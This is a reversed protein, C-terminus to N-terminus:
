QDDGNSTTTPSSPWCKWRTTSATSTTPTICAWTCRSAAQGARRCPCSPRSLNSRTGERVFSFAQKAQFLDSQQADKLLYVNCVNGGPPQTLTALALNAVGTQDVLKTLEAALQFQNRVAQVQDVERSATFEYYWAVTGAPLTVPIVTRSPQPNYYSFLYGQQPALVQVTRYKKPAVAVPQGSADWRQRTGVLQGQQYTGAERRHGAEDYTVCTGQWVAPHEGLLKGDWQVVGSPYAYDRVLGVPVGQQYSVHRVYSAQDPQTVEEKDRDLYLQWSGTRVGGLTANPAPLRLRYARQGAPLDVKAFGAQRVGQNLTVPAANAAGAIAFADTPHLFLAYSGTERWDAGPVRVFYYFGPGSIGTPLETLSDHPALTLWGKTNWGKWLGKDVYFGLAVSVPQESPNLLTLQALAPRAGALLTGLLLHPLVPLRM